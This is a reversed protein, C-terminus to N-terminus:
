TGMENMSGFRGNRLSRLPRHTHEMLYQDLPAMSPHDAKASQAAVRSSLFLILALGISKITM